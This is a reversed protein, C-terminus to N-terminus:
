RLHWDEGDSMVSANIELLQQKMKELREPQIAALNKTQKPDRELDFLQFNTYDGSKIKPIWAEQFMNNRSLEYAPDATLSYAGDRMAVVPRSKQLHWFLPQHRTFSVEHGTLLPSLDSGDIHRGSPLPLELLGCITPLVDVLGAPEMREVGERIRGQWWFMGPVRIGGEWNM